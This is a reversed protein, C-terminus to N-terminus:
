INAGFELVIYGRTEVMNVVHDNQGALIAQRIKGALRDAEEMNRLTNRPRHDIAVGGFLGGLSDFEKWLDHNKGRGAAGTASKYVFMSDVIMDLHVDKLDLNNEPQGSLWHLYRMGTIAGLLEMRGITTAREGSCAVVIEHESSEWEVVAACGGAEKSGGKTRPSQASGDSCIRVRKM